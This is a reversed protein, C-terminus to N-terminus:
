FILVLKVMNSGIPSWVYPLLKSEQMPRKRHKEALSYVLCTLSRQSGAGLRKENL